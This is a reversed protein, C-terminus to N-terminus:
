HDATTNKSYMYECSQAHLNCVKIHLVCTNKEMHVHAPRYGPHKNSEFCSGEYIFPGNNQLSLDVKQFLLDM